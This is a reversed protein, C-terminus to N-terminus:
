HRSIPVVTWLTQGDSSHHHRHRSYPFTSEGYIPRIQRELAPSSMQLSTILQDTITYNLTKSALKYVSAAQEAFSWSRVGAHAYFRVTFNMADLQM